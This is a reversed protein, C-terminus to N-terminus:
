PDSIRRNPAIARKQPLPPLSPLARASGLDVLYFGASFPWNEATKKVCEGDPVVTGRRAFGSWFDPHWSRLANGGRKANGSTPIFNMGRDNLERGDGVGLFPFM